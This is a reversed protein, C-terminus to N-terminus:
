QRAADSSRPARAPSAHARPSSTRRGVMSRYEGGHLSGRRGRGAGGRRARPPTRPDAEACVDGNTDDPTHAHAVGRKDSTYPGTSGGAVPERATRGEATRVREIKGAGAREAQQATGCHKLREPARARTQNVAGLSTCPGRRPSIKSGTDGAGGTRQSQTGTLATRPMAHRTLPTHPPPRHPGGPLAAHGRVATASRFIM